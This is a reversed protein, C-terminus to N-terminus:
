TSAFTLNYRKSLSKLFRSWQRTPHSYYQFYGLIIFIGIYYTADDELFYNIAFFDIIDSWSQGPTTTLLFFSIEVLAALISCIPIVILLVTIKFIQRKRRNYEINKKNMAKAKLNSASFSGKDVQKFKPPYLNTDERMNRNAPFISFSKEMDNRPSLVMTPPSRYESKRSPSNMTHKCKVLSIGIQRSITRTSSGEETADPYTNPNQTYIKLISPKVSEADNHNSKSEPTNGTTTKSHQNKNEGSTCPSSSFHTRFTKALKRRLSFCSMEALIGIMLVSIFTAIRRFIMWFADDTVIVLVLSVTYLLSIFITAVYFTPTVWSPVGKFGETSAAYNAQLITFGIYLGMNTAVAQYFNCNTEEIYYECNSLPIDVFVALDDTDNEM